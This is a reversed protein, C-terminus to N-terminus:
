SAAGISETTTSLAAAWAVAEDVSRLVVYIGGKGEVLRQFMRQEDSQRGTPTKIEVAVFRGRYCGILDAGGPGGVGFRVKYGRMEAVGINNRWLVLGDVRGLALRIEDQLASEKM